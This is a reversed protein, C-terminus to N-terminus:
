GKVKEFIVAHKILSKSFAFVFCKKLMEHNRIACLIGLKCRAYKCCVYVMLNHAVLM